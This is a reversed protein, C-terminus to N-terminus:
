PKFILVSNSLAYDYVKSLIKIRMRLFDGHLMLIRQTGSQFAKDTFEFSIDQLEDIKLKPYILKVETLFLCIDGNIENIETLYTNISM